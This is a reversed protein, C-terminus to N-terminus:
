FKVIKGTNKREEDSLISLNLVFSVGSSIMVNLFM